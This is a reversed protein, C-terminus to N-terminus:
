PRLPVSPSTAPQAPISSAPVSWAPESLATPRHEVLWEHLRDSPMPRGTHYGQVLDCGHRTLWDLEAGCEVGEAVVRLELEHAMQITSAVIVATRADQLLRSTFSRDIKLYSVPLDHLYALSSYGTGYDDVALDIGLARIRALFGSSSGETDVLLSETIEIRIASGPLSREALAEALYDVLNGDLLDSASLNVSVPMTWGRRRLAEVETLALQIVARTVQPMLGAREALPLFADPAIRGRVPHNWRVLAEMGATTGAPLAVIPQLEVTLDGNGLAERLAEVTALRDWADGDREDDYVEWGTHAGKARYMALDARALVRSAGAGPAVATIGISASLHLSMGQLAFPVDLTALLRQSLLGAGEVSLGPVFLAMEDGGLRAITGGAPVQAAFRQSVQRLLQDGLQHGLADNIEKFRDLDVLIVSGTEQSVGDPAAEEVAQLLEYFARRNPLGTLTDTLSQRRSDSLQVVERVALTTRAWAATLSGVALVVGLSTAGATAQLALVVIALLAFAGPVLFSRTEAAAAPRDPTSEGPVVAASCAMLVLALMYCADVPGGLAYTDAAVQTLYWSDAASFTLFGAALLLWSGDRWAGLAAMAGVITVVLALDLLPYAFNTAIAAFPGSAGATVRPFIMVASLSALGLGSVLGDLWVSPASGVLRTKVMLGVGLIVLPYLLLWLGDAVSPYSLIGLPELVAYYCFTGAAYCALGLSIMSWALRDRRLRAARLGCVTAAGLAVLVYAGADWFVPIGAAPRVGPLLSVLYGAVAV